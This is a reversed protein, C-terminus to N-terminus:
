CGTNFMSPYFLIVSAYCTSRVEIRFLRKVLTSKGSNVLGVVGVTAHYSLESRLKHIMLSFKLWRAILRRHSHVVTSLGVDKFQSDWNEEIKELPTSEDIKQHNPVASHAFRRYLHSELSYMQFKEDILMPEDQHLSASLLFQLKGAYKSNAINRTEYPAVTHSTEDAINRVHKSVSIYQAVVDKSVKRRFIGLGLKLLQWYSVTLSFDSIPIRVQDEMFAIIIQICMYLEESRLKNVFDLLIKNHAQTLSVEIDSMNSLSQTKLKDRSDKQLRHLHKRGETLLSKPSKIKPLRGLTADNRASLAETDEFLSKVSVGSIAPIRGVSNRIENDVIKQLYKIMDGNCCNLAVDPGFWKLYRGENVMQPLSQRFWFMPTARKKATVVFVHFLDELSTAEDFKVAEGRLKNIALAANTFFTMSLPPRVNASKLVHCLNRANHDTNMNAICSYASEIPIVEVITRLFQKIVDYRSSKQHPQHQELLAGLFSLEIM